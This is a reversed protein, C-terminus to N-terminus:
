QDRVDIVALSSLFSQTLTLLPSAHHDMADVTEDHRSGGFTFDFENILLNEIVESFTEFFQLIPTGVVGNMWVVQRACQGQPHVGELSPIRVLKIFTKSAGFTCVAPKAHAASTQTVILAM